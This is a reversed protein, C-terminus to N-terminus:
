RGGHLLDAAWSLVGLVFGGFVAASLAAVVDASM